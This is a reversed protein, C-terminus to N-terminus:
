SNGNGNNHNYYSVCQGQNTFYNDNEDTLNAYGGKKCQDKSTPENTLQFNYTTGNYDFADVNITYGPNNGGVDVGYYFATADPCITEVDTLTYTAPGGTTGVLAGNPCTVTKTSWFLGQDVNWHQWQDPIVTAPQQYPEYVLTTFGGASGLAHIALQYSADGEPFSTAQIQRTDYSLETVSTLSENSASHFYDAKGTSTAPTMLQLASPPLPSTSDPVYSTTAGDTQDVASWGQTNNPTVVVTSSGGGDASAAGAFGLTLAGVSAVVAGLVLRRRANIRIM